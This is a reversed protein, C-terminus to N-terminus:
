AVQILEWNTPQGVIGLAVLIMFIPTRIRATLIRIQAIL